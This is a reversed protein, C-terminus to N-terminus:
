RSRRRVGNDETEVVGTAVAPSCLVYSLDPCEQGRESESYCNSYEVFGDNELCDKTSLGALCCSSATYSACPDDSNGVDFAEICADWEAEEVESEVALCESCEEQNECAQQKLACTESAFWAWCTSM